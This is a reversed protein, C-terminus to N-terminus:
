LRGQHVLKQQLEPAGQCLLPGASVLSLGAPRAMDRYDLTMDAQQIGSCCKTGYVQRSM